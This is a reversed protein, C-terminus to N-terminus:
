ATEFDVSSGRIKIARGPAELTLDVASHLRVLSTTLELLNGTADEIRILNDALEVSGGSTDEFRVKAGEDDFVLRHGGPTQLTYRKIAGGEVGSDYPGDTGYLGGLVIGQAPDGHVLLVLVRDGVDPLAVLGKGSGAGVSVVEMWSSEIDRLTPITV